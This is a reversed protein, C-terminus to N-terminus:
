IKVEPIPINMKQLMQAALTKEDVNMQINLNIPVKSEEQLKVLAAMDMQVPADLDLRAAKKTVKKTSVSM